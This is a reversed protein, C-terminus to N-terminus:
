FFSPFGAGDWPHFANEIFDNDKMIGRFTIRETYNGSIRPGRHRRVTRQEFDIEHSNYAFWRRREENRLRPFKDFIKDIMGTWSEDPSKAIESFQHKGLHYEDLKQMQRAKSLYGGTLGAALHWNVDQGNSLLDFIAVKHNPSVEVQAEDLMSGLTGNVAYFEPLYLTGGQIRWYQREADKTAPLLQIRQFSDKTIGREQIQALVWPGMRGNSSESGDGSLANLIVSRYRDLQDALGPQVFFPSKLIDADVGTMELVNNNWRSRGHVEFVNTMYLTNFVTNGAAVAQHYRQRPNLHAWRPDGALSDYIKRDIYSRFAEADEKSRIQRINIMNGKVDPLQVSDPNQLLDAWEELGVRYGPMRDYLHQIEAESISPIPNKSEPKLSGYGDLSGGYLRKYAAARNVELRIKFIDRQEPTMEKYFMPWDGQKPPLVITEGDTWREQKIYEEYEAWATKNDAEKKNSDSAQNAEIYAQKFANKLADADRDVEVPPTRDPQQPQQPERSLDDADLLSGEFETSMNNDEESM